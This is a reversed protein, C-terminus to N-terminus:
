GMRAKVIRALEKWFNESKSYFYGIVFGAMFSLAVSAIFVLVPIAYVFFDVTARPDM